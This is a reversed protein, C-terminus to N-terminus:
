GPNKMFANAVGGVGSPTMDLGEVDSSRAALIFETSVDRKLSSVEPSIDRCAGTCSSSSAESIVTFAQVDNM